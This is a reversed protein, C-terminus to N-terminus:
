RATVREDHIRGQGEYELRVDEVRATTKWGHARYTAMDVAGARYAAQFRIEIRSGSHDLRHMAQDGSATRLQWLGAAPLPAEDFGLKGDVRVTCLLDVRPDTAEQRWRLSRFHVPGEDHTLQFYGLEPDDSREAYRDWYRFPFQIVAEGIGGNQAATAYRGRFLGRAPATDGAPPHWRPMEVQVQDGRVRMWTYHLLERGLLLTGQAALGGREFLRLESDRATAQNALIATPRHTLFHIRAGRDHGKAETNLLGRGNTAITFVGNQLSQYALIEGDILLLGGRPPYQASSDGNQIRRTGGATLSLATDVRFTNAAATFADDVLLDEAIQTTFEVEDVIGPMPQVNGVGGGVVPNQCYACPLEGSPFKVLRDYQRVDLIETGRPPGLLLLRVDEQFGVLQFPWDGVLERSAPNPALRDSDYQRASWLATHWEVAPRQQQAVSGQVLAVRDFRGVRGTYAGHNGWSLGLRQCASVRAAAHAHSSTRTFPDGRFGLLDRATKIVPYDAEIQPTYGIFGSSVPVAAWPSATPDAGAAPLTGQTSGGQAIQIRDGARAFTLQEYVDDWRLRSGRVLSRPAVIADYRVWELDNANGGLPELQVWESTGTLAPDFVSATNQVNISIPVVWTIQTPVQSMKVNGTGPYNTGAWDMVFQRATGDYRNTQIQSDNGPLRQARQVGVLRNAQRSQYRIVEIGGIPVSQAVSGLPPDVPIYRQMLLAYGGTAAFADIIPQPAPPPPYSPTQNQFGVPPPAALELDGTWTLDAGQGIQISGSPTSLNIPRPSSLYARAVAFGGIAGDLQTSGLMMPTDESLLASYGYLEVLAGVPHEPFVNLNVNNFRPDTIDVLPRGQADLPIAPAHEIGIQRAARGGLSQNFQCRFSNGNISSYEFLELGIRLVGVAPFGDTSEVQLDVYRQNSATPPLVNGNNARNPDFVPLTATLFTTHRARGRTVGDIAVSLDAPRGSYAAAAIHLPTNAPLNLEALPLFWESATRPVGAPSQGPSPDLGAEDLVALLLNGDRTELSLRNRNQNSDAYDFLVVNQLVQPEFWASMGFRALFGTGDFTTFPFKIRNPAGSNNAGGNGSNSAGGGAGPGRPGINDVVYPGQKVTDHGRPSPAQAFADAALIQVRGPWPTTPATAPMAAIGADLPETLPFRAAGLGLQPYAIPELHAHHRGAPDTGLAGATPHGLNIPTTAWYPARRDLQLADEFAIQDGWRREITFSPVALAIGSREHRGVIGTAASSRQRSAAARYAFWPGSAFGIPATGMDLLADRGTQLNRYVALWMAREADSAAAELQPRWLREVLNQWGTFPAGASAGASGAGAGPEEGSRAAVIRNALDQAAGPTLSRQASRRRQQPDVVRVLEAVRLEALVAALAEVPATNINLPAPLLPEAVTDNAAFNAVVPLLLELEFVSPLQLETSGTQTSTAIVLAFETQGSRLDRLRVTSGAGVHLASKVVLRRSKSAELNNFVRVPTGWTAADVSRTDPHFLRQLTDLEAATFAGLELSAVAALEGVSGFPERRERSGDGRGAFPWAAAMVCRYDLVLAGDRITDAFPAAMPMPVLGQDALQLRELEALQNGDRRGYRIVTSAVLVHGAPPLRSGDAVVMTTAQPALEELL